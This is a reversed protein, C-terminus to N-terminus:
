KKKYGSPCKPRVASIRKVAKGKICFITIKQSFAVKVPVDQKAVIEVPIKIEDPAKITTSLFTSPCTSEGYLQRVMGIDSNSLPINGFPPQWSDELTSTFEASPVMNGLGLFNGVDHQVAHIFQKKDNFWWAQSVKLKITARNRWNDIWWANWYGTANPHNPASLLDVFGIVIEAQDSSIIETFKVTALADDWSQFADRLWTLEEPTFSRVVAEDFVVSTNASWTIERNGGRNDWRTGPYYDASFLNKFDYTPCEDASAVSNPLYITSATVVILIALIFIKKV